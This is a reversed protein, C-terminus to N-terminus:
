SRRDGLRISFGPVKASVFLVEALFPVRRLGMCAWSVKGTEPALTMPIVEPTHWPCRPRGVPTGPTEVADLLYSRSRNFPRSRRCGAPSEVSCLWLRVIFILNRWRSYRRFHGPGSLILLPLPRSHRRGRGSEVLWRAPAKGRFSGLCFPPCIGGLHRDLPPFHAKYLAVTLPPCPLALLDRRLRLRSSGAAPCGAV